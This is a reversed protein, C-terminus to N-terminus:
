LILMADGYSFFRYGREIAERYARLVAERGAFASVLMLLTSRPLHFNTIMADVAKFRYGPYIFLDCRGRGATVSGSRAAAYELTRVSTTGVAVVRRGSRRAANLADAAEASLEYHEAHMQHRRIDTERVPKFTGYGIHLTLRVLRIGRAQLNALLEDTFHFGATPAAVAGKRAAYVTQYATPDDCLPEPRPGRSIYPPLPVRGILDLTEEFCDTGSFDIRFMGNMGGAVTGVLGRDFFLRCGTRPAKSAKVLCNFRAIGGPLNLRGAFDSILVEVRGGTEKRGLLRAPVVATDNLVLVDGGELRESLQHFVGHTVRGSDRELCLLRSRDRIAVPQQAILEEPLDYDYDSLAFM